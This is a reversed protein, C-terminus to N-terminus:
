VEEYRFAATAYSNTVQPNLDPNYVLFIYVHYILLWRLLNIDRDVKLWQVCLNNKYQYILFSVM